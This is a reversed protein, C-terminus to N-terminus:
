KDAFFEATNLAKPGEATSITVTVSPLKDGVKITM